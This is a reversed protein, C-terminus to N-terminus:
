NGSIEHYVELIKAACAEIKGMNEVEADAFTRYLPLRVEYMKELSNAQSLPRGAKPLLNLDRKLFILKGNQRLLNLNRAQTVCGGGTAIILGSQKGLESLVQTEVSRFDAECHAAFYEPISMGIEEEIATDADVLKRGTMESLARGVSSKGCGPMGILVINQTETQLLQLVENSKEMSVQSGTFRESAARAQEVLMTLGGLCPISRERADLLLKTRAPNYILDLVAELHPLRHLDLASEGCNPYMGVPTTNVLIAADAHRDLNEYNNEGSRSIVIVEAGKERLVHQVTLSAGGSGLVLAKKGTCDVQLRELMSMFGAADTNDGFLTGDKRRVITNVSGIAKAAPSLEACHPIVAKKYPITVNMADFADGQMFADLQEPEVEFLDYSYDGFFSHIRPSFSHGLKRGLLGARM